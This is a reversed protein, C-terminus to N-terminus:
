AGPFFGRPEVSAIRLRVRMIVATQQHFHRQYHATEAVCSSSDATHPIALSWGRIVHFASPSHFTRRRTQQPVNSPNSVFLVSPDPFASIIQQPEAKRCFIHWWKHHLLLSELLNGFLLIAIDFSSIGFFASTRAACWIQYHQFYM